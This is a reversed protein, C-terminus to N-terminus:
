QEQNQGHEDQYVVARARGDPGLTVEKAMCCSRLEAKGTALMAPVLSAQTSSKADVECGYSGCLACYACPSRGRYSRSLIARATPSAHLGLSKAARDIEDAIPHERLPPLPYPKSRPEAFPHPVTVGSVGIEEEALTYYPELDAYSIPWDEVTSGPIPGFLSRVRFDMPKFRYFFGSMHVTGGGVCNATWAVNSRSFKGNPTTRYLHPEEWPVPMFFTRRTMGVEDHVYESVKYDQGKELLVVQLGARALQLAAPAGGAGSGVVIVDVPALAM